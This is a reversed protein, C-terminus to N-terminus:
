PGVLPLPSRLVQSRRNRSRSDTGTGRLPKKMSMGGSNSFSPRFLQCRGLALAGLGPSEM